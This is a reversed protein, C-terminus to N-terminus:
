VSTLEPDMIEGSQIFMNVSTHILRVRTYCHLLQSWHDLPWLDWQGTDLTTLPSEGMPHGTGIEWMVLWLVICGESVYAPCKFQGWRSRFQASTWRNDRMQSALANFSISTFIIVKYIPCSAAKRNKYFDQSIHTQSQFYLSLLILAIIGNWGLFQIKNSIGM